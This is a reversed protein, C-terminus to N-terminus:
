TVRKGTIILRLLFPVLAVAGLLWCLLLEVPVRMRERRAKQYMGAGVALNLIQLNCFLALFSVPHRAFAQASEYSIPAFPDPLLASQQSRWLLVFLVLCYLPALLFPHAMKQVWRRDPLLIMLLWVPATMLLILVFTSNLDESGFIEILWIPM